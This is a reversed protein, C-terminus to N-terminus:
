GNYDPPPTNVGAHHLIIANESALGGILSAKFTILIENINAVILSKDKETEKNDKENTDQEADDTIEILSYVKENGNLRHSVPLAQLMFVM